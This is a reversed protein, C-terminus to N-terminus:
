VHRSGSGARSQVMRHVMRRVVRRFLLIPSPETQACNRLFAGSGGDGISSANMFNGLSLNAILINPFTRLNKFRTLIGIALGNGVVSFVVLSTLLAVMSITEPDMIKRVAQSVDLCSKSTM